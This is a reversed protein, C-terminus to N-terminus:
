ASAKKSKHLATALYAMLKPALEKKDMLPFHELSGDKGLVSVQNTSTGFGAGQNQMDNLVIFDLNKRVLKGQAYTLGNGTELAFGIFTQHPLKQEGCTALIDVTKKLPIFLENEKKKLKVTAVTEPTYDAVAAAAILIDTNALRAFVADAMDQASEVLVFNVGNPPTLATHGSILTVEAGLDKAATALAYGMTGTSHNSLYRVPDIAERTPGATLLVKKGKLPLNQPSLKELVAELIAEPEPLRGQGILGSALEGHQPALITWGFSKLTEINKQVAPHLYMDEDMAPCVIVPCRAALAVATLMADCFGNALKAISQATAPAILLLDSSIGLHIHKTWSGNENKPFVDILVENESLTGLTLPTIFRSADATMVVQVSAGQKKLLRILTASKYAAIGGCVGLVIKKNSLNDVSLNQKM